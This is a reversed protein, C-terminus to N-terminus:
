NHSRRLHGFAARIEAASRMVPTRLARKLAGKAIVVACRRGRHAGRRAITVQVAYLDTCVHM